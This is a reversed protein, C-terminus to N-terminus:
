QPCHVFQVFSNLWAGSNRAPKGASIGKELRASVARRIKAAIWLRRPLSAGLLEAEHRKFHEILLRERTATYNKTSRLRKAGDAVIKSVHDKM